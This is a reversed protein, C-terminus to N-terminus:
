LLLGCEDHISLNFSLIIRDLDSKNSQTYHLIPSPWFLISGEGVGQPIFYQDSPNPSIYPNLFNTPTHEKKDFKLYCVSSYGTPGHNHVSHSSYKSAKEFWSNEMIFFPKSIKDDNLVEPDLDALLLEHTAISLEENLIASIESSYCTDPTEFNYHYDTEVDQETQEKRNSQIYGYIRLLQERKSEWDRVVLHLIPISFMPILFDECPQNIPNVM